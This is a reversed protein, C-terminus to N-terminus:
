AALRGASEVLAKASPRTGGKKVAAKLEDIISWLLLYKCQHKDESMLERLQNLKRILDELSGTPTRVFASLAADAAKEAAEAEAGLEALRADQDIRACAARWSRWQKLLEYHHNFNAGDKDGRGCLEILAAEHKAIPAYVEADFMKRNLLLIAELDSSPKPYTARAADRAAKHAKDATEHQRDLRKFALHATQVANCEVVRKKPTGTANTKGAHGTKRTPKTRRM